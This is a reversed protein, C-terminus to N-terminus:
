SGYHRLSMLNATDRSSLQRFREIESMSVEISSPHAASVALMFIHQGKSLTNADANHQLQLPEVIHSSLAISFRV